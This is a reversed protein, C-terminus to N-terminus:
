KSRLTVQVWKVDTVYDLVVYYEAFSFGDRSLDRWKAARSDLHRKSKLCFKGFCGLFCFAQFIWAKKSIM